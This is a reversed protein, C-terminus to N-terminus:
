NNLKSSIEKIYFSPNVGVYKKFAAYFTSRNKFGSSYIYSELTFQKYDNTNVLFYYIKLRNILEVFSIGYLKKIEKSLKQENMSVIKACQKLDFDSSLYCKSDKILIDFKQAQIDVKYLPLLIPIIDELSPLQFEEQTNEPIICGDMNEQIDPTSIFFSYIAISLICKILQSTDDLKSHYNLNLFQALQLIFFVLFWFCLLRLWRISNKNLYIFNNGYAKITKKLYNFLFLVYGLCIFISLPQLTKPPFFGVNRVLLNTSNKYFGNLINIKEQAPLFLDPMITILVILPFILHLLQIPKLHKNPHLMKFIYFYFAAPFLARFFNPSRYLFLMHLIHRSTLAYVYFELYVISFVMAILLIITISIRFRTLLYGIFLMGMASTLFSMYPVFASM